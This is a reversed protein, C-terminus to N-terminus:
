ISNNMCFPCGNNKIYIMCEQCVPSRCQKCRMYAKNKSCFRCIYSNSLSQSSQQIPLVQSQDQIKKNSETNTGSLANDVLIAINQITLSLREVQKKILNQHSQLASLSSHHKEYKEKLANFQRAQNDENDLLELITEKLKKHEELFENELRTDDNTDEARHKDEDEFIKTLEQNDKAMDKQTIRYINPINYDAKYKLLLTVIDIKSHKVAFHLPTWGFKDTVNILAGSDLLTTCNQVSGFWSSIHLPTRGYNDQLNISPHYQLITQVCQSQNFWCALHLPSRGAADVQNVNDGLELIKKVCDNRGFKVAIM